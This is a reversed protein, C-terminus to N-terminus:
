QNQIGGVFLQESFISYQRFVQSSICLTIYIAGWAPAHTSISLVTSHTSTGSDRGVRAHSNFYLFSGDHFCITDIEPFGARIGLRFRASFAFSQRPM